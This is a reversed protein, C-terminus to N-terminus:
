DLADAVSELRSWTTRTYIMTTEVRIHRAFDAVSRLDGTADNATALATHRLQHTQIKGVGAEVAADNVWGRVTAATVHERGRSGPFVWEGRRRRLPELEDRLLPHVPLTHTRDGKGLVTYSTMELDFRDWRMSSIEAVRLALYLGSLVATGNPHWGLSTKVLDRAEIPDLARCHAQPQKPVRIAKVPPNPREVMAWWHTLSTRLQRRTSASLPFTSALDSVQKPTIVDLSVGNTNCRDQAQGIRLLYNQVTKFSLGLAILWDRYEDM